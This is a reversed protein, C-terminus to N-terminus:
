RALWGLQKKAHQQAWEKYELPPMASLKKGLESAQLEDYSGFLAPMVLARGAYCLVVTVCPHWGWRVLECVAQDLGDFIYEKSIRIPRGDATIWDQMICRARMPAQFGRPDNLLELGPLSTSHVRSVDETTGM